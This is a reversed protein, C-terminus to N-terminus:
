RYISVSEAPLDHHPSSGVRVGIASRCFISGTSRQIHIPAATHRIREPAIASKRKPTTRNGPAGPPVEAGDAVALGVGTAIEVGAGIGTASSVLSGSGVAVGAGVAV